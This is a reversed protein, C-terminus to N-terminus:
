KINKDAKIHTIEYTRQLYISKIIKNALYGIAALIVFYVFGFWNLEPLSGTFLGIIMAGVGMSTVVTLNGISAETSEAQLSKFVGFASNVYNRTMSWIDRTYSLTNRLTDHKFEFVDVFKAMEPDSKIVSGRTGIYTGMQSIRADILNITKSYGEIKNKFAAIEKGKIEGKEIVNEIKEWIIRHLNLYRHLQGKYERMFVQEQVFKEITAM